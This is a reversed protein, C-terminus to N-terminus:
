YKPGPVKFVVLIHKFISFGRIRLGLVLVSIQLCYKDISELVSTRHKPSSVQLLVTETLHIKVSPQPLMRCYNIGLKILASSKFKRKASRVSADMKM